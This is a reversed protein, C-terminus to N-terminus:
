GINLIHWIGTNEVYVISSNVAISLKGTQNAEKWDILILNTDIVSPLHLYPEISGELATM